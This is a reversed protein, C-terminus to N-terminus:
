PAPAPAPTVLPGAFGETLPSADAPGVVRVAYGAAVCFRPFAADVVGMAALATPDQVPIPCAKVLWLTSAGLERALWAALSDSTVDWSATIDKADAACRFPMWVPVRGRRLAERIAEISAAPVLSPELSAFLLGCQEMALLAMRHAARDDCGLKGQAMRVADAFPGGGPVVVVRGGGGGAAVSRLWNRLMDPSELLSGGLKVVHVM